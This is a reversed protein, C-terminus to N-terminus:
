NLNIQKHLSESDFAPKPFKLDKKLFTVPSPITMIEHKIETENITLVSIRISNKKAGLISGGANIFNVGKRHYESVEHLHGHLVLRCDMKKFQKILSKKERLKMTQREIMQWVTGNGAYEGKSDKCFHHHTVITRHKNKFDHKRLTKKVADIQEESIEGNSAFPNKLVSYKAISNLGILVLDDFEKIFPFVNEKLPQITEDFTEHFFKGFMRVKDDYDTKKCKAPFNLVDEALHVGGFIDHNGIVVSLKKSNLLGARKFLMRALEFSAKDANETIDGSVIIHNFDNGSIYDLLKTVKKINEKKHVADIHLDSIHAIKM